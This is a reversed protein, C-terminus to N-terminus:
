SLHMRRQLCISLIRLDLGSLDGFAKAPMINRLHWYWGRCPCIIILLYISWDRCHGYPLASYIEYTKKHPKSPVIDVKRNAM